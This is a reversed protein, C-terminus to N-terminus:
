NCFIVFDDLMGKYRNGKKNHILSKKIINDSNIKLKKKSIFFMDDHNCRKRKRWMMPLTEKSVNEQPSASMANHGDDFSKAATAYFESADLAESQTPVDNSSASEALRGDDSSATYERVPRKSSSSIDGDEDEDHNPKHRKISSM